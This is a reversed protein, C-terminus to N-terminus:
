RWNDRVIKQIKTDFLSADYRKAKRQLTAPMFTTQEARQIARVVDEVTQHKFLIGSVGDEVIEKTGASAYGIVPAGAALAEVSVIGFDEDSPFIFGKAHNLAHTVAADSADGFRDTYFSIHPSGAALQVLQDHLPGNGFVKLAIGLQKCAAVALDFRKNPLQRGLAVYYKDRTRAPSFRGVAVPPHVVTAPKGYYQKIRAQTESSNAIFVDVQQAGAYDLKRQRKVMGPYVLKVLPNLAGFGPEKRYLDYHSWYYRAPTHCYSIIKQGPRTKQVHNANLYASTLIIDFESLDMKKFANVGLTPFIRHTKRLFAPLQQLHSTRIDAGKFAPVKEPNYLATYIPAKPFLKHLELVVNEAGGMVTLFECVIAIKPEAM